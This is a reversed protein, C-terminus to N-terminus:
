NCAYFRRIRKNKRQAREIEIAMGESVKSGFVWIEECRDLLILNMKLALRREKHDRDDMFQPFLLHPALPIGGQNVVYRCYRRALKTNNVEDGRFLSCVYVIPKYDGNKIAEFATPDCYGAGNRYLQDM